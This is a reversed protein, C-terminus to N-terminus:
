IDVVHPIRYQGLRVSKDIVKPYSTELELLLTRKNGRSWGLIVAILSAVNLDESVSYRDLFLFLLDSQHYDKGVTALEPVPPHLHCLILNWFLWAWQACHSQRSM